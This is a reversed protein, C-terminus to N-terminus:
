RAHNQPMGVSGSAAVAPAVASDSPASTYGLNPRMHLRLTRYGWWGPFITLLLCIGWFPLVLRWSQATGEEGNHHLGYGSPWGPTQTLPLNIGLDVHTQWRSRSDGMRRYYRQHAPYNGSYRVAQFGFEGGSIRFVADWSVSKAIDGGYNWRFYRASAIRDRSHAWLVIVGVLM